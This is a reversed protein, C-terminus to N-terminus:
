DNCPSNRYDLIEDEDSGSSRNIYRVYYKRVGVENLEIVDRDLQSMKSRIFSEDGYGQCESTSSDSSSPDNSASTSNILWGYPIMLTTTFFIFLIAFFLILNKM